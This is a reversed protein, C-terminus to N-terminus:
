NKMAVRTRIWQVFRIKTFGGMIKLMGNLTSLHQMDLLKMVNMPGLKPISGNDIESLTKKIASWSDHFYEYFDILEDCSSCM